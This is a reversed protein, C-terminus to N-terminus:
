LVAGISILGRQIKCLRQASRHTRDGLSRQFIRLGVRLTKHGFGQFVQNAFGSRGLGHRRSLDNLL